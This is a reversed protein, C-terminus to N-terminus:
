FYMTLYSSYNVSTNTTWSGFAKVILVKSFNSRNKYKLLEPGFHVNLVILKIIKEFYSTNKMELIHKLHGVMIEMEFFAQLM